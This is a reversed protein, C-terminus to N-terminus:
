KSNAEAVAETVHRARRGDGADVLAKVLREVARGSPQEVVGRASVSSDVHGRCVRGYRACMGALAAADAPRNADICADICADVVTQPLRVERVARCIVEELSGGFKALVDGGSVSSPLTMKNGGGSCWRAWRKRVAAAADESSVPRVEGRQMKEVLGRCLEAVVGDETALGRQAEALRQAETEAARAVVDFETAPARGRAVVRQATADGAIGRRYVQVRRESLGFGKMAIQAAEKITADEGGSSGDVSRGQLEAVARKMFRARKIVAAYDVRPWVRQM